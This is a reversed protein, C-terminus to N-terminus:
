KFPDFGSAAVAPQPRKHAQRSVGKVKHACCTRRTRRPDPAHGVLLANVAMYIPFASRTRHCRSIPSWRSRDVQNDSLKGTPLVTNDRAPLKRLHPDRSPSDLSPDLPPDQTWEMAAYVRDAVQRQSSVAPQHRRSEGKARIGKEAM